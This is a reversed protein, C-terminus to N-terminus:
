IFLLQFSCFLRFLYFDTEDLKTQQLPLQLTNIFVMTRKDGRRALSETKTYPIRSLTAPEQTDSLETTKM